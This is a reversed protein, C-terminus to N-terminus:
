TAMHTLLHVLKYYFELEELSYEVCVDGSFVFKNTKISFVGGEIYLDNTDLGLPHDLQYKHIGTILRELKTKLDYNRSFRDTLQSLEDAVHSSIFNHEILKSFESNSIM